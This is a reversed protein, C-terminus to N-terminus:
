NNLLRKIYQPYEGTFYEYILPNGHLFNSVLNSWDEVSIVGNLKFLKKSIPKLGKFHKEDFNIDQDRKEFYHKEEYFHIAGDFHQFQNTDLNFEAHVYRVPYLGKGDDLIQITEDKFELLQFTKINGKTSWKIDLSYNNSFLIKIFEPKIGLTPRHKVIGDPICAIEKNYKAGFWADAEFYSRPEDVRIAEDDLSLFADINTKDLKYFEEVFSPTFNNLQYYGRRFFHSAMLYFNEYSFYGVSFINPIRKKLDSWNYLDDKDPELSIIESIKKDTIIVLGVAHYYDLKKIKIGNASLSKEISELKKSNSRILENKLKNLQEDYFAFPNETM